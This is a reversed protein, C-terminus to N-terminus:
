RQGANKRKCICPRQEAKYIGASMGLGVLMEGKRMSRPAPNRKSWGFKEAGIKYCEKIHNSSWPKNNLQDTESFNKLRLELPDMNLAYALEDIASEM